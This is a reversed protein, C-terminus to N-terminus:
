ASAVKATGAMNLEGGLLNSLLTARLTADEVTSENHIHSM